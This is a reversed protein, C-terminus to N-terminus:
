EQKKRTALAKFYSDVQQQYAAPAQDDAGASLRDKANREQLKKTLTSEVQELAANVQRKMEQWKAFDQKFAETGPASLTMGQGEFTLGSGGQAYAPDEKRLQDILARVEQVQRNLQERVQGVDVSAGGSGGQGQGPKNGSDGPAQQASQSAQAGQRGTSRGNPSNAQADNPRQNLQDLQRSLSDMRERLEQARSLNASLKQSQDDGQRSAAALSDALRDLARAIEEQTQPTGDSAPASSNKGSAKPDPQGATARMSDASQQMRQGLRQRDMERAANGAAEQLSRSETADKGASNGAASGQQKLGDQVRGLRDALRDQEGALRRLADKSAETASQGARKSDAAIQREADALQRAELQLDGLARRRGDPTTAELQHELERLKELARAARASAQDTQQRGLESAANRMEESIDRMEKGNQAGARASQGENQGSQGQQGPQGSQGQQQATQGQQGPRNPQGGGSQQGSQAPQPQGSQNQQGSQQQGNQQNQQQGSQLQQALQEAKQRLENQERTLSELQRKVEEASMQQRNRAFDQQKQLLEDQRQALDKIKDIASAKQDDQAAASKPTEYNTQQHRALEKDFLSSLDQINRNGGAGSGVQQQVQREKVDAQARLLQNLAELEPAVADATKLANLSTIAKGMATAALMMADEEALTQGARVVPPPPTAGRGSPRSRPDRMTSQRFTSSSEEVRVKLEGEAKGVSRIDEGSQAGKAAKSRRDLKWTAVIIQKQAAVLDDIQRNSQRGNNSAQSQALKFDEEFPKVDLFFIDNRTENSSKDQALDRARVYYSVFDGPEVDLDELYLTHHATVSTARQPVALPVRKEPGGRVSYVLDFASIGFDDSAEAEITVEELRTVRRDSAPKVVHVEPPRDEMTRIFYETDGHSALGEADALAVRYAGDETVKLSGRLIADPGPTLDIGKDPGLVMRGSAAPQDTHVLVRVDTGAPAYIDGGDEEVRPELGLARPYSYEVDIRKVRPARVVAVAFTKSTVAGAVVKYRFSTALNSLALAFRGSADKPMETAQWDNDNGTESRFLQAVVPAENGVLRALVTFNSGAQVRADGPTVDLIVHAPFMALALADYSRRAMHRVDFLLVGMLLLAALAQIRARRLVEAAVIEAPDVDAAARAADGIMSAALRPMAQEQAVVGVASVLREDLETKREEIFRAIQADSPADRLPLLGRVIAAIALILTLVGLTALALPARTIFRALLDFVALVATVLLATRMTARYAVLRRWRVRVRELLSAIFQYHETM